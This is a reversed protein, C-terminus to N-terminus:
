ESLHTGSHPESRRLYNGVACSLCSQSQCAIRYLQIQGQTQWANRGPYAYRAYLRTYRNNEPPLQQFQAIQAVAAELQGTHRLYHISFPLLANIFINQHLLPPFRTLPRVAPKQWAIHRQWYPSPLPLNQPPKELLHIPNPFQELLAALLSWRVWATAPPRFPRWSLSLSQWSHKRRLYQWTSLLEQEYPAAPPGVGELLGSLGFLTAEKELLSNTYRTLYTWPLYEAVQQFLSGQPAGMAYALAIWFAQMLENESRYIHLRAKLRQEGWFDYVEQWVEQPVERALGACPFPLGSFRAQFSPPIGASKLPLIPIARGQWDLTRHTPEAEWVVHLIVSAYKPNEHHRHAYWESPIRDIEVSGAWRVGEIRIIAGSFDPGASQPTGPHLVEVRQGCVTHLSASDFLKRSWLYHLFVEPVLAAM